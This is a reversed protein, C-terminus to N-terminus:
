FVLCLHQLPLSNQGPIQGPPSGSSSGCPMAGAKCVSVPLLRGFGFYPFQLLLVRKKLYWPSLVKGLTQSSLSRGCPFPIKEEVTEAGPFCFGESCLCSSCVCEPHTQWSNMSGCFMGLPFHGLPIRLGLVPCGLFEQRPKWGAKAWSFNPDPHSSPPTPSVPDVFDANLGYCLKQIRSTIKDFM